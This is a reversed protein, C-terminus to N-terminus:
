KGLSQRPIEVVPSKRQVPSTFWHIFALKEVLGGFCPRVIQGAGLAALGSVVLDGPDYPPFSSLQGAVGVLAIARLECLGLGVHNPAVVLEGAHIDPAAFWEFNCAEL